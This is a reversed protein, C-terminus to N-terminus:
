FYKIDKSFDYKEYKDANGRFVEVHAMFRILNIAWIIPNLIKLAWRLYRM